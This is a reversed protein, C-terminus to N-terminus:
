YHPNDIIEFLNPGTALLYIFGALVLGIAFWIIIQKM